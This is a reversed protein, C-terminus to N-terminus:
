WRDIKQCVDSGLTAVVSADIIILDGLRPGLLMLFPPVPVSCFAQSSFKFVSANSTSHSTQERM